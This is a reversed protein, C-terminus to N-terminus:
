KPGGYFNWHEFKDKRHLSLSGYPDWHWQDRFRSAWVMATIINIVDRPVRTGAVRWRKRLVGYLTLLSKMCQQRRYCISKVWSSGNVRTKQLAGASLLVEVTRKRHHKIAVDLPTVSDGANVDAKADILM